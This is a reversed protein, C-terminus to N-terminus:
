TWWKATLQNTLRRVEYLNADINQKWLAVARYFCNGDGRMVLENMNATKTKNFNHPKRM